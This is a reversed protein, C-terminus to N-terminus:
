LLQTTKPKPHGEGGRGGGGGCGGVRVAPSVAELGLLKQSGGPPTKKLTQTWPKPNRTRKYPKVLGLSKVGLGLGLTSQKM